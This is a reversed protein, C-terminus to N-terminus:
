ILETRNVVVRTASILAELDGVTEDYPNASLIRSVALNLTAQNINTVPDPIRIVRTGGLSTSFNLEGTERM